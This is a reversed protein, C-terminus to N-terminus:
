CNVQADRERSPYFVSRVILCSGHLGDPGHRLLIRTERWGCYVRSLAHTNHQTQSTGLSSILLLACESTTMWRPQPKVWTPLFEWVRLCCRARSTLGQVAAENRYRDNETLTVDINHKIRYFLTSLL